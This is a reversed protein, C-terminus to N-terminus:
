IGPNKSPKRGRVVGNVLNYATGRAVGLCRAIERYSLGEAKLKRAEEPSARVHPRGTPAPAPPMPPLIPRTAHIVSM